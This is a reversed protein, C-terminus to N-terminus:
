KVILNLIKNKVYIKKVITKSAIWNQVKADKLAIAIANSESCDIEIEIVTRTKGNIQVPLNIKTTKIKSTDYQPWVNQSILKNQKLFVQNIEESIFPAFCSLIICFSHMFTYNLKEYQYCENIFVMMKSIANNFEFNEICDTVEKVFLHYQKEMEPNVFDTLPKTEFLRYVRLVWKKMGDIGADNWSVSATLPGLFSIYLRLADAGHSIVIDSPNVVNGKSKSMKENDKLIMGQNILRMFPEKTPVIKIDYLFKHWFRAYLLHLVAHEQGGIYIDVPLWRKFIEYAQQSNLPLYSGDDQKLLYALYYWCSGAWQPMTNTERVLLKNDVIVNVWEKLKALPSSGDGSPKFDVVNPLLLPLKKELYINHNKDFLIPFPEGWYRQRSFLWDKIKFNITIKGIKNAELYQNIKNIADAKKLGNLFDSNVYTSEINKTDDGNELVPIIDLHYKKAFQFDREDCSPVGMIAGEGYNSLVYNTVYVPITKKTIPHIAKFNLLVGEKEANIAIKEYDKVFSIKEVFAKVEPYDNIVQKVLYHDTSLGIFSVGFITDPCTTFVEITHNNTTKFLVTTGNSKGIWKTQINKLGIPWDVLELDDVLRNAYQTIKLIWQLMPKKVVSFGGRESVKNGNADTLVEENALVTGLQECWNVDVYNLNALKNEYLRSFIWQTWEYFLPDCTDVEKNTDFSFGLQEIQKKFNDINKKTFVAPHNNTKIAYQEAPLGFADWGIPHLVCYGQFRKYRAIIDTPTYSKVHGVHLGAGSPYPFMDLAYFKPKSLDEKFVYVNKEKWIKSWKKEVLNHNYM